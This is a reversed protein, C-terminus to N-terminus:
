KACWIYLFAVGSLEFLILMQRSYSRCQIKRNWQLSKVLLALRSTALVDTLNCGRKLTDNLDWMHALGNIILSMKYGSTMSKALEWTQSLCQFIIIIAFFNKSIDTSTASICCKSNKVVLYIKLPSCLWKEIKLPEIKPLWEKHQLIKVILVVIKGNQSGQFENKFNFYQYSSSKM